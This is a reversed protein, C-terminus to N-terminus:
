EESHILVEEGFAGLHYASAKNTSLPSRMVRIPRAMAKRAQMMDSDADGYYVSVGRERIFETKPAETTFIVEPKPIGFSQALVQPVISRESSNRATIFVVKDGRAYHLKVLAGGSKKPLSFKDFEGNMDNWFKQSHLPDDGYLNTGGPGDHNTLGYYFGPSSFLVTDDIDFGVVVPKTPLSAQIKAVTVYKIDQSIASIPAKTTCATVTVSLLLAFVLALRIYKKM